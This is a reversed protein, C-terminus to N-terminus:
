VDWRMPDPSRERHSFAPEMSHIPTHASPRSATTPPAMPLGPRISSTTARFRARLMPDSWGAWAKPTRMSPRTRRRPGTSRAAVARRRSERIRSLSTSFRFTQDARNGDIALFGLPGGGATNAGTIFDGLEPQTNLINNARNAMFEAIVRQTEEATAGPTQTVTVPIAAASPNSSTDDAAGVAVNLEVDGTGDPTITATFVTGAGGPPDLAGVTANSATLEGDIFGTVPESFTVTATFSTPAGRNFSTVGGTTFRGKRVEQRRAFHLTELQGRLPQRVLRDGLLEVDGIPRGLEVELVDVVLQACFPAALRNGLGAGLADDHLGARNRLPIQIATARRSQSSAVSRREEKKRPLISVTRFPVLTPRRFAAEGYVSPLEPGRASTARMLPWQSM